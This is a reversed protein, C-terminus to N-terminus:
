ASEFLLGNLADCTFRPIRQDFCAEDLAGVGLLHKGGATFILSVTGPQFVERVGLMNHYGVWAEYVLGEM